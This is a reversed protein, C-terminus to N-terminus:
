AAEFGPEVVADMDVGERRLYEAIETPTSGRRFTVHAGSPLLAVFRWDHQALGPYMLEAKEDGYRRRPGAAIDVLAMPIPMQYAAPDFESSM